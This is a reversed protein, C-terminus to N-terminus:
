FYKRNLIESYIIAQRFQKKGQLIPQKKEAVAIKPIVTEILKGGENKANFSYNQENVAPGPEKVFVEKDGYPDESLNNMIKDAKFLDWFEDPTNLGDTTSQSGQKKKKLQGLAGAGALVITLIVAILDDM